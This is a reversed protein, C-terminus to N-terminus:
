QVTRKVGGARLMDIAAVIREATKLRVFALAAGKNDFVFAQHPSEADLLPDLREIVIFRGRYEAGLQFTPDALILAVAVIAEDDPAGTM